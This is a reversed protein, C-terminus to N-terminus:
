DHKTIIKTCYQQQYGPADGVSVVPGNEVASSQRRVTRFATRLILFYWYVQFAFLIFCGVNCQIPINQPVEWLTLGKSRGYMYYIFPFVLLRCCFFTVIILVGNILYLKSKKWGILTLIARLHLFPTAMEVSYFCGIFFDGKGNRLFMVLPYAIIAIALHHVVIALNNWCYDKIASSLAATQLHPKKACHMVFMAYVDYIMYPLGFTAYSNTLWHKVAVTSTIVNGGDTGDTLHKVWKQFLYFLGPFFVCGLVFLAAYYM